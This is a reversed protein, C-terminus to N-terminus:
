GITFFNPHPSPFFYGPTTYVDGSLFVCWIGYKLLMVHAQKQVFLVHTKCPLLLADGGLYPLREEKRRKVVGHVSHVLRHVGCEKNRYDGILVFCFHQDM